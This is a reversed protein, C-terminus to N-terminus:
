SLMVVGTKVASDEDILTEEQFVRGAARASRRPPASINNLM